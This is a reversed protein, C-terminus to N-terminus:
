QGLPIGLRLAKVIAASTAGTICPVCIPPVPPVPPVPPGPPTPPGVPVIPTGPPGAFGPLLGNFRAGGGGGTLALPVAIATAIVGSGALIPLLIRGWNFPRPVVATTIRPVIKEHIIVDPATPCAESQVAQAVFPTGPEITSDALAVLTTKYLKPSRIEAVQDLSVTRSGNETGVVISDADIKEIKGTVLSSDTLEIQENVQPDAISQLAEGDQFYALAQYKARKGNTDLTPSILIGSLLVKKEAGASENVIDVKSGNIRAIGQDLKLKGVQSIPAEGQLLGSEYGAVPKYNLTAAQALLPIDMGQMGILISLLFTSPRM